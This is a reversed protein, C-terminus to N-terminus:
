VGEKEYPSTLQRTKFERLCSNLFADLPVEGHVINDRTRLAVTRNAMEREGITLMYNVKEMQAKRVRKGLSEESIDWDCLIGAEEVTQMVEKAYPHHAKAVPILRIPLPSMWLPFKGEFHEILIGLFREISGFIARHIMVPRKFSGERDKYTLAFKEPLALDLQLTGCQWRRGLADHVHLDIKPGYFAGDGLNMQYPKGWVDLAERLGTTAIDWDQDTGISKEPRTSLEFTYQLGFTEYIEKVLDLVRLTEEKIQSPQLFIHADDQHFSQVRFLGSLAGSPEKRHVHGLEAIRLPFERYSHSFSKFYLMCGPCNMPKIAAEKEEGLPVTFMNSRYHDWHGSREWLKKSMLQPTQIVTYGGKTHIEKWYAVLRDWIAVGRPHLFPIAPAESHFSFLDLKAGLVRHDRKKAEELQKLYTNLEEKSPFSIAYIRTLSERNVDGRWYAASMKLLKFGKIKGLHPLHPGRCLDLFEGQRYASIQSTEDFGEILEKKFPNGGFLAFAEEKNKISLRKPEFRKAVITQVEKEIAQFAEESIHLHAFDYYFGQEIPPGITLQAEPWLRLVAQALVHASTHWFVEKGEPSGFDILDVVDGENLPVTLDCLAGNVRAVLAQHPGEQGAKKALDKALSKEPLELEQGQYKVKM